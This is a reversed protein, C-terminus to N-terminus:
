GREEVSHAHLHRGRMRKAEYLASDAQRLLDDARASANTTLATGISATVDLPQGALAVPRSIAARVREVIREARDESPVTCIVVFEDGGIRAATDPARVVHALRAGVQRLVEDGADHGLTDNVRKFLDLDIYLVAVAGQNRSLQKLALRLHDIALHRNALGTLPDHLARYALEEEAVKQATVDDVQVLCRRPQGTLEAMGLQAWTVSSDARTCRCLRRVDTDLLETVARGALGSAVDLTSFVDTLRMQVLRGADFGTLDCLSPNVELM